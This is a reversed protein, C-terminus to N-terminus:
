KMSAKGVNKHHLIQPESSDSGLKYCCLLRQHGRASYNVNSNDTEHHCRDLPSVAQTRTLAIKLRAPGRMVIHDRIIIIIVRSSESHALRDNKVRGPARPPTSVRVM